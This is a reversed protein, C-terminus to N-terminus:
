YILLKILCANGTNQSLFGKKGALKLSQTFLPLFYLNTLLHRRHVLLKLFDAFTFIEFLFSWIQYCKWVFFPITSNKSSSQPTQFHQRVSDQTSPM